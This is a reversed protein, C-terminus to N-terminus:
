ANWLPVPRARATTMAYSDGLQQDLLADFYRLELLQMNLDELVDIADWPDSDVLITVNWDGIALDGAYYSLQGRLTDDVEAASVPQPEFRLAAALPARARQLLEPITLPPELRDAQIVYYDESVATVAPKTVALSFRSRHEELLVRALDELPGAGTLTATLSPLEAVDCALPAVLMVTIAGVEHIVLSATVSVTTDGVRTTRE